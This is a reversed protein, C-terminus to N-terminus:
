EVVKYIREDYLSGSLPMFKTRFEKMHSAAGHADIAKQDRWIEVLTVHNPRSNQQLADFAISGAEARSPTTLGRALDLGLDKSTPVIDVHTVVYLAAKGPIGNAPAVALATHPREDYPSRLLGELKERFAKTHAAGAHAAQADKDKWAELVAFHNPQGIRQLTVFQLKGADARSAKALGVLMTRAQSASAPVTEFYSVIYAPGADQAAVPQALMLPLIAAALLHGLSFKM